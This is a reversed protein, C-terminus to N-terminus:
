YISPVWSVKHEKYPEILLEQMWADYVVVYPLESHSPFPLIPAVYTLFNSGYELRNQWDTYRLTWRRTGIQRLRQSETHEEHTHIHRWTEWCRYAHAKVECEHSEAITLGPQTMTGNPWHRGIQTPTVKSHSQTWTSSYTDAYITVTKKHGIIHTQVMQTLTYMHKHIHTNTYTHM